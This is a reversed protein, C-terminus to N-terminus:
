AVSSCDPAPEARRDSSPASEEAIKIEGPTLGYLAAVRANLDAEFATLDANPNARKARLIHDVLAVIPKQQESPVDPIPLQKWDDPYLHINSRRHARLFERAVSSNMVGLLYKVAFRRSTADLEERKPLDPRPREGRYRAAKKLSNNRM